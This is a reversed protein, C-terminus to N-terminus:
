GIDIEKLKEQEIAMKAEEMKEKDDASNDVSVLREAQYKIGVKMIMFGVVAAVFSAILIALKEASYFINTGKYAIECIFLSMSMGIGTLVCLGFFQIYNAGVPLKSIGFKITAFSAIFIGLPKSLLLGVMIAVSVPHSLHSIAEPTILIGANSFAFVPMVFFTIVDHLKYEMDRAMSYGKIPHLPIFVAALIGALTAHVGSKLFCFWMLVAPIIYFIKKNVKLLNLILMIFALGGAIGLLHFNVDGSYFVAIIIVVAIDDIIALLLLFIRISPPIKSGLLLLVGVALATDSVTPIAWGLMSFSDGWTILIFALAPFIIGGLGGIIPLAVRSPSSLEGVLIERKVELGIYFFFLAMLGDNAWHHITLSLSYEGFMMGMKFNVFSDYFDILPSNKFILALFCAMIILIGGIADSKFLKRIKEMFERLIKIM